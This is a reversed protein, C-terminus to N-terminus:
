RPAELLSEVSCPLYGAEVGLGRILKGLLRQVVAPADGALWRYEDPNNLYEARATARTPPRVTPNPHVHMCAHLHAQLAAATGHVM